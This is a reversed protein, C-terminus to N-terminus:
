AGGRLAAVATAALVRVAACCGRRWGWARGGQAAARHMAPRRHRGPGRGGRAAGNPEGARRGACGQVISHICLPLPSHQRQAHCIRPGHDPLPPPTARLSRRRDPAAARGACLCRCCCCRRRWRLCCSQCCCSCSCAAAACWRCGTWCCPCCPSESSPPWQTRMRCRAWCTPWRRPLARLYRRTPTHEHARVLSTVACCCRPCPLAPRRSGLWCLLCGCVPLMCAQLPHAFPPCGRVEHKLLASQAGFSAGLAEVAEAGGRNRLAFM